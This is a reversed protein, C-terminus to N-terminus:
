CHFHEVLTVSDAHGVAWVDTASIAAVSVLQTNFSGPNPSKVVTWQTGNWQATLPQTVNNSNRDSGVAWVDTASIATLGWFSPSAGVNPSKVVQWSTGNWHEVLTQISSGNFTYGAAWVNNASVASVDSLSDGSGPSPSKVVSWSTGNWHEILTLSFTNSAGVAWVNNASIAAVGSLSDSSSGPNPSKVVSWSTGNWHEILTHDTTTSGTSFGVAWVNSASVAAVSFLENNISFPSPSKVVSWRTGNWHETLTQTVQNDNVFYGVAWVNTASIATVGSLTNYRTGPNPSQVIQWNTGNWHETLTQGSSTQSGATGVAWVDTASIAAVASLGDPVLSSNPSPVVSWKGCSTLSFRNQSVQLSSSTAKAEMSKFSLVSLLITVMCLVIGVRISRKMM